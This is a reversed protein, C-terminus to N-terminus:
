ANSVLHAARLKDLGSMSVVRANDAASRRPYVVRENDAASRRPYVVRENDAASRRPHCYYPM